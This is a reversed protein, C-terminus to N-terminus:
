LLGESVLLGKLEENEKKDLAGSGALWTVYSKPLEKIPTGRHKGFPMHTMKNPTLLLQVIQETTLDGVLATFVQHLVIVDDLARHANNEAIEFTERLFQLSHKPLDPRYRRAWALSDLHIWENPWVLEHRLGEYHLMLKDFRDNNHAILCANPGCFEIFRKGVESFDDADKVMADTIHHIATAEPPIPVRPNVFAEFKRDGDPDYAAIEIILDKDTRIGTTETDYYIRRM